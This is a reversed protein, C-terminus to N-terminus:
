GTPNLPSFNHTNSLNWGCAVEREAGAAFARLDLLGGRWPSADMSPKRYQYQVQGDPLICEVRRLHGTSTFYCKGAEIESAEM